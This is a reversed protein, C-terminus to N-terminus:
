SMWTVVKLMEIEVAAEWGDDFGRAVHEINVGEVRRTNRRDRASQRKSTSGTVIVDRMRNRRHDFRQAVFRFALAEHSCETPETGFM